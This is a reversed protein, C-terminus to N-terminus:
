IIKKIILDFYFFTGDSSKRRNRASQLGIGSMFTEFFDDTDKEKEVDGAGNEIQNMDELFAKNAEESDEGLDGFDNGGIVGEFQDDDDEEKELLDTELDMENAELEIQEWDTGGEIEAKIKKEIEEISSDKEPEENVNVEALIANFDLGLANGSGFMEQDVDEQKNDSDLNQIQTSEKPDKSTLNSTIELKKPSFDNTQPDQKPQNNKQQQLDGYESEFEKNREKVSEQPEFPNEIRNTQGTEERKGIKEMNKSNKRERKEKGPDNTEMLEKLFKDVDNPEVGDSEDEIMGLDAENEEEDFNIAKLQNALEERTNSQYFKSLQYDEEGESSSDSSYSRGSSVEDEVRKAASPRKDKEERAGFFFDGM